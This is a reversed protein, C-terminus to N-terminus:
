AQDALARQLPSQNVGRAIFGSYGPNRETITRLITQAAMDSQTQVFVCAGSGSLRVSGYQSLQEFAHDIEPYLTRAVPEFDNHGAGTLATRITRVPTNRTLQPHRFLAPTSVHVGPHVVVFWHEPLDVPTLEEGIGEAWASRGRVFVPVDAGLTLGIGALADEDLGLKWLRNLGVLATACDSSGGGIGGGLPLRKSLHIDAGGTHGTADQLARAARTILNDENAVDPISPTVRVETDDRPTLTLEDGYDLIQFLTQLRHYGDDRRGVIHLMLNLKAPAPLTLTATLAAESTFPRAIRIM